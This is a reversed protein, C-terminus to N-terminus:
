LCAKFPTEITGNKIAIKMKLESLTKFSPIDVLTDRCKLCIGNKLLQLFLGIVFKKDHVATHFWSAGLRRQDRVCPMFNVESFIYAKDEIEYQWKVNHKKFFIKMVVNPNIAYTRETTSKGADRWFEATQFEATLQLFDMLSEYEELSYDYINEYDIKDLNTKM